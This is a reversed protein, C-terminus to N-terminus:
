HFIMSFFRDQPNYYLSSDQELEFSSSRSCLFISSKKSSVKVTTIGCFRLDRPKFRVIRNGILGFNVDRHRGSRFICFHWDLDFCDHSNFILSVFFDSERFIRSFFTFIKDFLYNRKSNWSFRYFFRIDVLGHSFLRFMQFLM